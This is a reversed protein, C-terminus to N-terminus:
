AASRNRTLLVAALAACMSVALAIVSYRHLNTFAVRRPDDFPVQDIVVMSARLARMRSAIVWQDVSTAAAMVVLAISSLRHFLGRRNKGIILGVLFLVLSILCGSINVASLSSTVITGAIENANVVNFAHLTGFLAPALVFSFFVAAGLWGSILILKTKAM